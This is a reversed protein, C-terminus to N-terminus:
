LMVKKAQKHQFYQKTGVIHKCATSYLNLM